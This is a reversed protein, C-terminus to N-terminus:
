WDGVCHFDGHFQEPIKESCGGSSPKGLYVVYLDFVHFFGPLFFSLGCHLFVTRENRLERKLQPYSIRAGGANRRPATCAILPGPISKNAQSKPTPRHHKAVAACEQKSWRRPFQM